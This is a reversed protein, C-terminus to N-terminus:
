ENDNETSKNDETKADDKRQKMKLIKEAEEWNIGFHRLVYEFDRVDHDVTKRFRKSDEDFGEAPIHLLEHLILVYKRSITEQVWEELYVGIIYDINSFLGYMPRMPYVKAAYKSSKKSFAAYGIRSPKIHGLKDPFTEILDSVLPLIDDRKQWKPAAIDENQSPQDQLEEDITEDSPRKIKPM